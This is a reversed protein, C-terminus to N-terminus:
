LKRNKLKKMYDTIQNLSNISISIIGFAPTFGDDDTTKNRKITGIKTWLLGGFLNKGMGYVKIKSRENNFVLEKKM